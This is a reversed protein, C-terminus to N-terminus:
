VNFGETLAMIGYHSKETNIFSYRLVYTLNDSCVALSLYTLQSKREM